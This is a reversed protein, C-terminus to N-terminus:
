DPAMGYEIVDVMEEYPFGGAGGLLAIVRDALAPSPKHGAAPHTGHPVLEGALEECWGPLLAALEDLMRTSAMGWAPAIARRERAYDHVFAKATSSVHLTRAPTLYMAGGLDM